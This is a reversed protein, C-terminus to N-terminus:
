CLHNRAQPGQSLRENFSGMRDSIECEDNGRKFEIGLSGVQAPPLGCPFTKSTMLSQIHYLCYDGMIEVLTNEWVGARLKTSM